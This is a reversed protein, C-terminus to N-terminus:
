PCALVASFLTGSMVPNHGNLQPQYESYGSVVRPPQQHEPQRLAAGHVGTNGLWARGAPGAEGAPGGVRDGREGPGAPRGTRTGLLGSDLLRELLGLGLGVKDRSGALDGETVAQLPVACSSSM